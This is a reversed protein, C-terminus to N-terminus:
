KGKPPSSKTKEPQHNPESTEFIGVHILQKDPSHTTTDCFEWIADIMANLTALQEKDVWANHIGCHVNRQNTQPMAEPSRAAHEYKRSLFRALTKAFTIRFELHDPDDSKVNSSIRNVCPRYLQEYRKGMLQTGAEAVINVSLLKQIHPYISTRSRATFRAIDAVSCEELAVLAGFIEWIAPNTFVRRVEPDSFGIPKPPAFESSSSPDTKPTTM